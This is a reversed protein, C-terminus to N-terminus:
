QKWEELTGNLQGVTLKKKSNKVIMWTTAPTVLAHNTLRAVFEYVATIAQQALLGASPRRSLPVRGAFKHKRGLM